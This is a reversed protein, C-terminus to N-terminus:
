SNMKQAQSKEPFRFLKTLASMQTRGSDGPYNMQFSRCSVMKTRIGSEMENRIKHIFEKGLLQRSKSSNLTRIGVLSGTQTHVNLWYIEREM